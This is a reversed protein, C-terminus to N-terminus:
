ESWSGMIFVNSLSRMFLKLCHHFEVPWNNHCEGLSSATSSAATTMSNPAETAIAALWHFFNPM